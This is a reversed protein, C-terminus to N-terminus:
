LQPLPWGTQLDPSMSIEMERESPRLSAAVAMTAAPNTSIYSAVTM